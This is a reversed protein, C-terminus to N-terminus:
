ETILRGGTPRDLAACAEPSRRGEQRETVESRLGATLEDVHPRLEGRLRGM